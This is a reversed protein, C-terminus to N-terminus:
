LYAGRVAPQGGAPVDCGIDKIEMPLLPCYNWSHQLSCGTRRASNVQGGGKDEAVQSPCPM